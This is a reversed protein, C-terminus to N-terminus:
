NGFSADMSERGPWSLGPCARSSWVRSVSLIPENKTELLKIIMFIRLFNKSNVIKFNRSIDQFIMIKGRLVKTEAPTPAIKSSKKVGLDDLVQRVWEFYRYLPPTACPSSVNPSEDGADSRLTRFHRYICFYITSGYENTYSKRIYDFCDSFIEFTENEDLFDM